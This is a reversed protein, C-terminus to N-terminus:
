YTINIILYELKLEIYRQEMAQQSIIERRLAPPPASTATTHRRSGHNMTNTSM